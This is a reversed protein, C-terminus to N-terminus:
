KLSSEAGSYTNSIKVHGLQGFQPTLWTVRGLNVSV